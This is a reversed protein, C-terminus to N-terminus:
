GVFFVFPQLRLLRQMKMQNRTHNQLLFILLASIAAIVTIFTVAPVLLQAYTTPKIKQPHRSAARLLQLWQRKSKRLIRNEALSHKHCFLHLAVKTLTDGRLLNSVAWLFLYRTWFITLRDVQEPGRSSYLEVSLPLDKLQEGLLKIRGKKFPFLLPPVGATSSYLLLCFEPWKPASVFLICIQFGM